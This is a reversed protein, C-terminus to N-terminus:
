VLFRAEMLHRSSSRFLFGDVPVVLFIAHQAHVRGVLGVSLAPSSESEGNSRQSAAPFGGSRNFGYLQPAEFVPRHHLTLGGRLAESLMM